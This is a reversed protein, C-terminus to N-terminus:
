GEAAAAGSEGAVEVSQHSDRVRDSFRDRLDRKVDDPLGITIDKTETRQTAQGRSLALKDYIIATATAAKQPDDTKDLLDATRRFGKQVFAWWEQDVLEQKRTALESLEPDELYRRISRESVGTAEAAEPVGVIMALGAVQAREVQPRKKGRM